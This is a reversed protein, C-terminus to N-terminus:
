GTARPKKTPGAWKVREKRKPECYVAVVDLSQPGYYFLRKIVKFSAYPRQMLITEGVEPLVSESSRPMGLLDWDKGEDRENTRFEVLM